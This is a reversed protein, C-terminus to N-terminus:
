QSLKVRDMMPTDGYIQRIKEDYSEQTSYDGGFHQGDKFQEDPYFHIMDIYNPFLEYMPSCKYLEVLQETYERKSESVPSPYMYFNVNRDKCLQAIKVVYRDALFYNDPFEMSYVHEMLSNLYIKRNLGSQDVLKIMNPNMFIKGYVSYMYDLTDADLENILGSECCPIVMYRYVTPTFTINLSEPLVVLYLDTADKHTDLYSKALLYQGAMTLAANGGIMSVTDNYEQLGTFIQNCVSDGIVAATTGDDRKAKSFNYRIQDAGVADALYDESDTMKAIATKTVSVSSLVIFFAVIGLLVGIFCTIKLYLQIITKKEEKM